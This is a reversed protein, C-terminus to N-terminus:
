GNDISVLDHYDFDAVKLDDQRGSHENPGAQIPYLGSELEPSCVNTLWVNSLHRAVGADFIPEIM